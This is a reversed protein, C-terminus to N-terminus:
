LLLLKGYTTDTLAEIGGVEIWSMTLGSVAVLALAGGAMASFAGVAAGAGLVDDDARRRGLVVLLAVLGGFWVAAALLHVTDAVYAVLSPSMTRTHGALAFGVPAVLAGALAIAPVPRRFPLGATIGILVLGLI